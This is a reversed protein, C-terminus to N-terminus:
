RSQRRTANRQRTAGPSCAMARSFSARPPRISSASSKWGCDSNSARRKWPLWGIADGFIEKTLAKSDKAAAIAIIADPHMHDVFPRPVFAHLPTDISAARPNLNFTCHPLFGVMEDEHALGRYLGKLARLKDM